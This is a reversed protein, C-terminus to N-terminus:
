AMGSRDQRDHKCWRSILNERGTLVAADPNPVDCASLFLSSKFPVSTNNLTNGYIRFTNPRDRGATTGCVGFDTHPLDGRASLKTPKRARARRHHTDGDAAVSALRQECVIVARNPQVVHLVPTFQAAEFGVQPM